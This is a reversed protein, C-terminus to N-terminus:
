APQSRVRAVMVFENYVFLKGASRPFPFSYQRDIALGLDAALRTMAAFDVFEVHTADSAYGREQPCILVVKGGDRVCPLYPALFDRLEPATMHEAVHSLLLSDFTAPRNRDSAAFDTPLYAEVGRSRAYEVSLPDYDIGVGDGGLSVLNRGIGCGLDLTVGLGLRRLNWRYPAQVPLIRKWWVTQLQVLRQTYEANGVPDDMVKTVSALAWSESLGEDLTVCARQGIV